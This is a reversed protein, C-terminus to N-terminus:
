TAPATYVYLRHSVDDHIFEEALIGGCKEAVRYSAKNKTQIVSVLSPQKLVSHGYSIVAAAAETAFGHGWSDKGFRYGVEIVMTNKDYPLPRYYLGCFGIMKNSRLEIVAWLSYGKEQQQKQQRLLFANSQAKSQPGTIMYRMVEQDASIASLVEIDSGRFPRMGLRATQIIYSSPKSM